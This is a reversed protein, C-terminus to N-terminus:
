WPIMASDRCSRPRASTWTTKSHSAAAAAAGSAPLSRSATATEVASLGFYVKSLKTTPEDLWNAWAAARATASIGLM